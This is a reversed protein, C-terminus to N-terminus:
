LSSKCDTAIHFSFVDSDFRAHKEHTYKKFGSLALVIFVCLYKALKVKPKLYLLFVIPIQKWGTRKAHCCLPNWSSHTPSDQAILVLVLLRDRATPDVQCTCKSSCTPSGSFTGVNRKMAFIQERFANSFFDYFLKRLLSILHDIYITLYLFSGHERNQWFWCRSFINM